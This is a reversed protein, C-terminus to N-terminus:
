GGELLDIFHDAIDEPRYPTHEPRYWKYIWNCMGLIAYALLEPDLPRFCGGAIGEKIIEVIIGTYRKKEERIKQFDKEPLQSEESFFVSFMSLDKVIINKIHNRLIMRLKKDPPLETQWIKRTTDFIQAFAQTYIISLLDDKSAVYHYIGAKSIGLRGAVDGLSTSQYGNKCFLEAAVEIIRQKRVSKDLSKFDESDAM